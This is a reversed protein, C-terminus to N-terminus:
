RLEPTFSIRALRRAEPALVRLGTDAVGARALNVADAVHSVPQVCFFDRGPPTYLVLFSLLPQTAALRLHAGREPWTVVAEGDWGTFVNDLALDAIRRGEALRWEGPVPRRETPMVDGDTLWVGDTRASLRAEPTRPFYPHFGLGAPMLGDSRNELELTIELAGASLAFSQRARYSWPWGAAAHEYELVLRNEGREAVTWDRRWGHGHLAHRKGDDAPTEVIERGCFLFRADRIRNSYPVLPFCALDEADGRAVAAPAAPRLWDIRRGNAEWWFAAVAGGAGPAVQCFAMGSTLTILGNGVVTM